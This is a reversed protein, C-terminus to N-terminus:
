WWGKQNATYNIGGALGNIANGWANAQNIYGSARANGAGIANQGIQNAASQGFSGIQNATSQGTSSLGALRNYYNGFNQSALGQGLAIRDADAGGSTLSLNAANQRDLGKMGQEYAYLYDPSDQFGAWDGRLANQQEGLAWGGAQMWPQLDQRTQDYQRRQEATAEASSAAQADAARDAAKSQKSGTALTAVAGIAAGWPM